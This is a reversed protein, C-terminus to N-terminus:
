DGAVGLYRTQSRRFEEEDIHKKDKETLVKEALERLLIIESDFEASCPTMVYNILARRLRSVLLPERFMKDVLREALPESPLHIRKM